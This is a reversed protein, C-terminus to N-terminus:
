TKKKAGHTIQSQVHKANLKWTVKEQEFCKWKRREYIRMTINAEENNQKLNEAWILAINLNSFKNELSRTAKEGNMNRM